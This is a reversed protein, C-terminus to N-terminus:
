TLESAAQWVEFATCAKQAMMLRAEDIASAVDTAADSQVYLEHAFNEGNESKLILFEGHEDTQAAGTEDACSATIRWGIRGFGLGGIRRTHVQAIAGQADEYFRAYPKAENFLDSREIM